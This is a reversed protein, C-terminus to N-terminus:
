GSRLVFLRFVIWLFVIREQHALVRFFRAFTFTYIVIISITCLVILIRVHADKLLSKSIHLIIDVKSLRCIRFIITM